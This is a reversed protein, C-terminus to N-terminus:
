RIDDLRYMFLNKVCEEKDAYVGDLKKRVANKM